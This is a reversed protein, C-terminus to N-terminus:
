IEMVEQDLANALVTQGDIEVTVIRKELAIEEARVVPLGEALGRLFPGFMTRSQQRRVKGSSTRPLTGGLALVILPQVLRHHQWLAARIAACAAVVDLHRLARREVEQVLVVREVNGLEISFASSARFSEDVPLATSEIDGPHHNVGNVIILDKIRGTVYLEGNLLFGLDGTRFYRGDAGSADVEVADARFAQKTADPRQWYGHAVSGGIICIEGVEGDPLRRESSPDCIFPESAPAPRGSSVLTRVRADPLAVRGAAAPVAAALPEAYNEELRLANFDRVIAKHGPFSGTVLLTGEALGYCPSAADARLGCRAFKRTFAEITPARVYEAGNFATRWNSLNLEDMDQESIKRLCLEYAFNPGGSITARYRSVAQLWRLPRQLFHIPAMLTAPFGIYLSQLIGGVLGM